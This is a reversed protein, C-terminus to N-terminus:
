RVRLLFLKELLVSPRRSVKVVLRLCQSFTHGFFSSGCSDSAPLGLVVPSALPLDCRLRAVLHLALRM